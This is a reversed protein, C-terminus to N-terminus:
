YEEQNQDDSIMDAAHKLWASLSMGADKAARQYAVKQALTVRVPPLVESAKIAKEPRGKKKRKETM